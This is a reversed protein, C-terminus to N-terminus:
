RAQPPENVHLTLTAAEAMGGLLLAFAGALLVGRFKMGEGGKLTTLM